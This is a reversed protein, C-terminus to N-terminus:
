RRSRRRSMSFTVPELGTVHVMGTYNLPLFLQSVDLKDYTRTRGHTGIAGYGLPLPFRSLGPGTYTRTKGPSGFRTSLCWLRHYCIALSQHVSASRHPFDGSRTAAYLSVAKRPSGRMLAVTVIGRSRLSVPLRYTSFTLCRDPLLAM